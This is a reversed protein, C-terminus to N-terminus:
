KTCHDIECQVTIKDVLYVHRSNHLVRSFSTKVLRLRDVLM